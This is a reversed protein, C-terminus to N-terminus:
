CIYLSLPIINNYLIMYVIFSSVTTRESKQTTAAYYDWTSRETQWFRMDLYLSLWVMFFMMGFLILTYQNIQDEILSEKLRPPLFNKVLKTEPGTYIVM